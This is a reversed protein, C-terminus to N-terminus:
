LNKEVKRKFNFVSLDMVIMFKLRSIVITDDNKTM